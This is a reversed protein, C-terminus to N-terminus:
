VIMIIVAHLSVLGNRKDRQYNSKHKYYLLVGEYLVFYRRRFRELSRTKNIDKCGYGEYIPDQLSYKELYKAVDAKNHIDAKEEAPVTSCRCRSKSRQPKPYISPQNKTLTKLSSTFREKLDKTNFM